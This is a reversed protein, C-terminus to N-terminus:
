ICSLSGNLDLTAMVLKNWEEKKYAMDIQARKQLLKLNIMVLDKWRTRPSGIPKKGRMKAVLAQLLKAMQEEYM